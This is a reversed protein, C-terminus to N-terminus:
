GHAVITIDAAATMVLFLGNQFPWPAASQPSPNGKTLDIVAIVSGTADTGDYLTLTATGGTALTNVSVGTIWGPGTKVLTSGASTLHVLLGPTPNPAIWVPQANAPNANSPPPTFPSNTDKDAGHGCWDDDDVTVWYPANNVPAANWSAPTPAHYRCLRKSVNGVKGFTQGFYCTSCSNPM